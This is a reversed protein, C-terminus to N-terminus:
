RRSDPVSCSGGRDCDVCRDVPQFRSATRHAMDLKDASRAPGLALGDIGRAFAVIEATDALQPLLKAPVFSGVEIERIGAEAEAEIWNKKADTPMVSSISQLGDRPGVESVLIDIEGM